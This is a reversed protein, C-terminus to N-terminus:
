FALVGRVVKEDQVIQGISGPYLLQVYGIVGEEWSRGQKEFVSELVSLFFPYMYLLDISRHACALKM